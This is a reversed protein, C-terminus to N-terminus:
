YCPLIYDLDTVVQDFTKVLSCVLCARQQRLDKPVTEVSGQVEDSMKRIQLFYSLSIKIRLYYIQNFPSNKITRLSLSNDRFEHSM